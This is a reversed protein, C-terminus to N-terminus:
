FLKELINVWKEAGAAASVERARADSAAGMAALQERHEVCRSMAETLAEVNGAPFTWGNVGHAVLERAGVAESCLVPLGAGLAQNIVVGWGEYRSPLVFVDAQSFLEPLADPARFGVNDIRTRVASPLQDLACTEVTERGALVLRAQTSPLRAFAQLLVDFGKRAIMQGCFLFRVDGHSGPQAARAQFERLECHYAISEVHQGPFRERYDMAAAEGVAVIARARRMPATLLSSVTRRLASPQRRMREGWFIWRERPLTRMLWRTTPSTVDLNVIVQEDADPRPLHRNLKFRVGAVPICVGPLQHEWPELATQPWPSDPAAKESYFVRVQVDSRAALARFLDRQYPSPLVSFILIKM